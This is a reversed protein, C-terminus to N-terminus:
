CLRLSLEYDYKLWSNKKIETIHMSPLAILCFIQMKRKFLQSSMEFFIPLSVRIPNLKHNSIEKPLSLMQFDAKLM